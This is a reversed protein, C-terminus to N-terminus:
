KRKHYYALLVKMWNLLFDEGRQRYWQLWWWSWRNPHTQVYIKQFRKTRILDIVQWTTSVSPLLSISAHPFADKLNYEMRNWGRGTDTTYYIDRDRVSSYAEGLLDFQSLSFHKWFDGNDWHSLPNGHMCVTCIETVKRLARLDREFIHGALRMDGHAKDVVEYHYGIEHGLGAIRGVIDRNFNGKSVRFYYTSKIKCSSELLAMKLAHHPRRDVDHRLIVFQSAGGNKRFYEKLTFIAFGSRKIEEILDQYTDLSFDKEM